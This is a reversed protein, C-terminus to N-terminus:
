LLNQKSKFYFRFGQNKYILGDYKKILRNKSTTNVAKFKKLTGIEWFKVDLDEPFELEVVMSDIIYNKATYGKFPDVELSYVAKTKRELNYNKSGLLLIEYEPNSATSQETQLLPQDIDNIRWYEIQFSTLDKDYRQPHILRNRYTLKKGDSAESTIVEFTVIQTVEIFDPNNKNREIKIDFHYDKYYRELNNPLYVKKIDKQIAESIDKFKDGFMVNNVMSWYNELDNRNKLYDVDYIIKALEDKIIGLYQITKLLSAFIGSTLLITGITTFLSKWDTRIGFVDVKGLILFVISIIFILWFYAKKFANAEFVKTVISSYHKFM